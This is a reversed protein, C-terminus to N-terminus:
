KKTPDKKDLIIIEDIIKNHISRIKEIMEEILEKRLNCDYTLYHCHAIDNRIDKLKLLIKKEEETILLVEFGEPYDSHKLLNGRPPRIKKGALWGILISLPIRDFEEKEWVICRPKRKFLVSKKVALEHIISEITCSLGMIASFYNGKSFNKEVELYPTYSRLPNDALINTKMVRNMFINVNGLKRKPTRDKKM